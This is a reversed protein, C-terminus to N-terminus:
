ESSSFFIVWYRCHSKSLVPKLSTANILCQQISAQRSNELSNRTAYPNTTWVQVFLLSFSLSSIKQLSIRWLIRPPFTWFTAEFLIKLFHMSLWPLYHYSYERTNRQHLLSYRQLFKTHQKAFCDKYWGGLFPSKLLPLPSAKHKILNNILYTPCCM